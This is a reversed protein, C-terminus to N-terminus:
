RTKKDNAECEDLYKEVAKLKEPTDLEKACSKMHEVLAFHEMDVNHKKTVEYVLKIHRDLLSGINELYLQVEELEIKDVSNLSNIKKLEDIFRIQVNLAHANWNKVWVKLFTQEIRKELEEGEQQKKFMLNSYYNYIVNPLSTNEKLLLKNLVRIAALAEDNNEGTARQALAAMTHMHTLDM